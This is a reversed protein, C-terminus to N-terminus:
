QILSIPKRRKQCADVCIVRRHNLLIFGGIFIVFCFCSFKRCIRCTEDSCCFCFLFEQVSDPQRSKELLQLRLRALRQHTISRASRSHILAAHFFWSNIDLTLLLQSLVLVHETEMTKKLDYSCMFCPAKRRLHETKFSFLEKYLCFATSDFM